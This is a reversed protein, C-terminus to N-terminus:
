NERLKSKLPKGNGNTWNIKKLKLQFDRGNMIIYNVYNSLNVMIGFNWLLWKKVFGVNRQNYRTNAQKTKHVTEKKRGYDSATIGVSFTDRDDKM